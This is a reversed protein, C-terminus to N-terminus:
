EIRKIKSKKNLGILVYIKERLTDKDIKKVHAVVYILSTHHFFIVFAM